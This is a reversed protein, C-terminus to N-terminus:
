PARECTSVDAPGPDPPAGPDPQKTGLSPRVGTEPDIYPLGGLWLSRAARPAADAGSKHALMVLGVCQAADPVVEAADMLAAAQKLITAESLRTEAYLSEANRSVKLACGHLGVSLLMTALHAIRM